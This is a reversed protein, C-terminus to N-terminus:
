PNDGQRAGEKRLARELDELNRQVTRTTPHDGGLRETCIALARRCLPEAGAYDGKAKLLGALNNLSNAM